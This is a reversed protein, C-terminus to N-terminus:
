AAASQAVKVASYAVVKVGDARQKETLQATAEKIEAYTVNVQTKGGHAEIWKEAHAKVERQLANADGVYMEAEGTKLSLTLFEAIKPDLPKPQRGRGTPKPMRALRTGTQITIGNLLDANTQSAAQPAGSGVVPSPPVTTGSGLSSSSVTNSRNQGRPAM